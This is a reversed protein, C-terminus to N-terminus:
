SNIAEEEDVEPIPSHGRSRHSHMLGRRVDEAKRTTAKVKVPGAPLTFEDEEQNYVKEYQEREDASPTRIPRHFHPRHKAACFLFTMLILAVAGAMGMCELLFRKTAWSSVTRHCTVPTGWTRSDREDTSKQEGGALSYRAFHKFRHPDRFSVPLKVTYDRYSQVVTSNQGKRWVGVLQSPLPTDGPGFLLDVREVDSEKAHFVLDVRDIFSSNGDCRAVVTTYSM